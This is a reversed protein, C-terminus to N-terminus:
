TPSVFGRFHSRYFKAHQTVECSLGNHWMQYPDTLPNETPLCSFILREWEFRGNGVRCQMAIVRQLTVVQFIVACDVKVVLIVHVSVVDYNASRSVNKLWEFKQTTCPSLEWPQDQGNVDDVIWKVSNAPITSFTPCVLTLPERPDVDRMAVVEALEMWENFPDREYFIEKKFFPRGNPITSVRAAVSLRLM